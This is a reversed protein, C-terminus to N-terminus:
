LTDWWTRLRGPVPRWCWPRHGDNGSVYEFCTPCVQREARRAAGRRVFCSSAHARRAEVSTFYRGCLLCQPESPRKECILMHVGLSEHSAAPRYGCWPCRTRELRRVPRTPRDLSGRGSAARPTIPVVLESAAESARRAGVGAVPNGREFLAARRSALGTVAYRDAPLTLRLPRGLRGPVILGSRSSTFSQSAVVLSTPDGDRMGARRAADTLKPVVVLQKDQARRAALLHSADFPGDSRVSRTEGALNLARAPSGDSAFILDRREYFYDFALLLVGGFPVRNRFEKELEAAFQQREDDDVRWSTRRIPRRPSEAM